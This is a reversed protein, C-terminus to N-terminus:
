LLVNTVFANVSYITKKFKIKMKSNFFERFGSRKLSSKVLKPTTPRPDFM